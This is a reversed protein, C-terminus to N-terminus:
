KRKLKVLESIKKAYFLYAILILIMIKNPIKLNGLKLIVKLNETLNFNISKQRKPRIRCLATLPWYNQMRIWFDAPVVFM